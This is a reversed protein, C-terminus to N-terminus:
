RKAEKVVAPEACPLYIARFDRPADHELPLKLKERIDEPLMRVVRGKPKGSFYSGEAFVRIPPRGVTANSIWGSRALIGYATKRTLEGIDDGEGPNFLSLSVYGESKVKPMKFEREEVVKFHGLGSSRDAGIGTDGLYALAGRFKSLSDPEANALFWLGAQPAFFQLAFFFLGGEHTMGCRDVMVRQREAATWPASAVLDPHAAVEEPLMAVGGPLSHVDAFELAEGTLVRDFVGKSIWKVKKMEKRKADDDADAWIRWAPMPFLLADGIYPFASSVTFPPSLFFDDGTDPRVAAWSICLAASLTDSRIFDDSVEPQGSGKSDVHLASLFELKFLQM